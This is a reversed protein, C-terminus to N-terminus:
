QRRHQPLAAHVRRFMMACSPLLYVSLPGLCAAAQFWLRKARGARMAAPLQEDTRAYDHWDRFHLFASSRRFCPLARQLGLPSWFANRDQLHLRGFLSAYRDRMGNPLWHCFPLGTDHRIVPFLRNPTTIVVVEQTVRGLEAIICKSTGVHELVEICSLADFSRDAFPLFHISGACWHIRDAVGAIAAIERAAILRRHNQDVAVILPGGRPSYLALAIPLWGYGTGIDVVSRPAERLVPAAIWRVYHGILDNPDAAAERSHRFHPVERIARAAEETIWRGAAPLVADPATSLGAQSASEAMEWQGDVM